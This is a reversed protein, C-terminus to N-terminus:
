KTYDYYSMLFLKVITAPQLVKSWVGLDIMEVEAGPVNDSPSGIVMNAFSTTVPTRIIAQEVLEGNMYVSTLKTANNFTVVYHIWDNLNRVNDAYMFLGPLSSNKVNTAIPEVIFEANGAVGSTSFYKKFGIFPANNASNNAIISQINKKSDGYRKALFSVSWSDVSPGLMFKMMGSNHIKLAKSVRSNGNIDKLGSANVLSLNNTGIISRGALRENITNRFPMFLQLSSTVDTDAMSGGWQAAQEPTTKDVFHNNVSNVGNMLAGNDNMRRAVLPAVLTSFANQGYHYKDTPNSNAETAPIRIFNNPNWYKYGGFVGTADGDSANNYWNVWYICPTYSFWLRKDVTGYATKPGLAKLENLVKDAFATFAPYHLDSNSKDNEGQCWVIGIFRSAPFKDMVYKTRDVITRAYPSDKSWRLPTNMENPALTTANYSGFPSNGLIGFVSSTYAVPIVLLKYNSPVYKLLEKALPLHIGKIAGPDINDANYTLPIIDLNQNPAAGRRYSLQYARPNPTDYSANYGSRDYGVANSQGAVVVVMYKEGQEGAEQKVLITRAAEKKLRNYITIKGTRQLTGTNEQISLEFRGDITAARTIESTSEIWDVDAEVACEANAKTDIILNGGSPTATLTSDARSFIGTEAPIILEYVPINGSIEEVINDGIIWPRVSIKTWILNETVSNIRITYRFNRELPIYEGNNMLEVTYTLEAGNITGLIEVATADSNDTAVNEYTYLSVSDSNASIAEFDALKSKLPTKTPFINSATRANILKASLLTFNEAACLVDIRSVVRSLSCEVFTSAASFEVQNLMGYMVLPPNAMKALVGTQLNLLDDLTTVRKTIESSLDENDNNAILYLSRIGTEELGVEVYDNGDTTQSFSTINPLYKELKSDKFVLIDLRTIENESVSRARTVSQVTKLIIRSKYKGTTSSGFNEDLHTCGVTLLIVAILALLIHIRKM